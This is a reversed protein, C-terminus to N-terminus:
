PITDFDNVTFNDEFESAAPEFPVIERLSESQLLKNMVNQQIAM